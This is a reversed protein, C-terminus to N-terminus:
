GCGQDVTRNKLWQNFILGPLPVFIHWQILYKFPLSDKRPTKDRVVLKVADGVEVDETM